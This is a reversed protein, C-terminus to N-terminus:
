NFRESLSLRNSVVMEATLLVLGALLLYWWLGQQRESEIPTLAAPEQGAAAENGPGPATRLTAVASATALIMAIAGMWGITDM